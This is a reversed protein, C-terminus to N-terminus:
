DNVAAAEITAARPATRRLRLISVFAILNFMLSMFVLYILAQPGVGQLVQGVLWPLVM